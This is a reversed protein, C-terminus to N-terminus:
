GARAILRRLEAVSVASRRRAVDERKFECIETLKNM